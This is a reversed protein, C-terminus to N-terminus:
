SSSSTDPASQDRLAKALDIYEQLMPLQDTLGLDEYLRMAAVFNSIAETYDGLNGYVNGMGRLINAETVADSLSRSLRLAERYSALAQVFYNTKRAEGSAASGLEAYINGLVALWLTLAPHDGLQRYLSAAEQLHELAQLIQGMSMLNNGLNGLRQALGRKDRLDRAIRVSEIHLPHAQDPREVDDYVLALNSLWIGRGRVDGIEQAVVLAQNLRAIAEDHRGLERLINGTNGLLGGETVRDNHTQALQLATELHALAEESMGLRNYLLALSGLHRMEAPSDGAAHAVQVLKELAQIASPFDQQQIAVRAARLLETATETM